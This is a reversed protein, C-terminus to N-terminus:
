APRSLCDPDDDSEESDAGTDRPPERNLLSRVRGIEANLADICAGQSEHPVDTVIGCFPCVM